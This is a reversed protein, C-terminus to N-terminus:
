LIKGNCYMRWGSAEVYGSEAKGGIADPPPPDRIKEFGRDFCSQPGGFKEVGRRDFSFFFFFFFFGLFQQLCLNAFLCRLHSPNLLPM